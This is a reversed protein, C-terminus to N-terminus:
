SFVFIDVRVLIGPMIVIVRRVARVSLM